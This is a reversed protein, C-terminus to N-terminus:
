GVDVHSSFKGPERGADRAVRPVRSPLWLLSVPWDPQLSHILSGGVANTPNAPSKIRDRRHIPNM